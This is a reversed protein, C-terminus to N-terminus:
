AHAADDAEDGRVRGVLLYVVCQKQKLMATLIRGSDRGVFAADKVDVLHFALHALSVARAVHASEEAVHAEAVNAVRGLARCAALLLRLRKVHVGRVADHEHVVAVQSVGALEVFLHELDVTPVEVGVGRPLSRSGLWTNSAM